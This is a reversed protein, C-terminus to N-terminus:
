EGTGLVISKATAYNGAAIEALVARISKTAESDPDSWNMDLAKQAYNRAEPKDLAAGDYAASAYLSAKDEDTLDKLLELQEVTHVYRANVDDPNALESPVPGESPQENAQNTDATKNPEPRTRYLYAGVAGTVLLLALLILVTKKGPGKRGTKAPTQDATEM